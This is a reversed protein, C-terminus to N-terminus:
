SQLFSKDFGKYMWDKFKYCAEAVTNAKVYEEQIVICLPLNSAQQADVHSLGGLWNDDEDYAMFFSKYRPDLRNETNVIHKVMYQM